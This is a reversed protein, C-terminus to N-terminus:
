DRFVRNIASVLQKSNFPKIIWGTLGYEQCEKKIEESAETTLMIIPTYKFIDVQRVAKLLDLGTVEPMYFDIVM